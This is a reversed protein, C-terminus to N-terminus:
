MAACIISVYHTGCTLAPTDGVVDIFLTQDDVTMLGAMNTLTAVSPIPTPPGLSPPPGCPGHITCTEGAALTATNGSITFDLSGCAPTLETDWTASLTGASESITVMGSGGSSTVGEAGINSTCPGYVGPKLPTGPSANTVISTPELSAPVPCHFYGSVDYAGGSPGHVSIFLTDGILVLSGTTATVTVNPNEYNPFGVTAVDFSQGTAFTASIGSTPKFAVNGSAFPAFGLAAVVSDSAQALTISGEGGSTGVFNPGLTVLTSSCGSYAGLPITLTVSTGSADGLTNSDLSTRAGCAFCAAAIM